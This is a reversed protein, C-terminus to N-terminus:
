STKARPLHVTKSLGDKNQLLSGKQEPRKARIQSFLGNQVLQRKEQVFLRIRVKILDTFRARDGAPSGRNAPYEWDVDLGDFGNKRLFPVVSQIFQARSQQTAVMQTFPGSAMNWGGLALLTKMAPNKQKLAQFREFRHVLICPTKFHVSTPGWDGSIRGTTSM